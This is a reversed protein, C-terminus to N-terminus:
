IRFRNWNVDFHGWFSELTIGFDMYSDERIAKNGEKGEKGRESKGAQGRDSKGEKM